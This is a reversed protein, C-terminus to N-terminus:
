SISGTFPFPPTGPIVGIVIASSTYTHLVRTLKQVFMTASPNPASFVDVLGSILGGLGPATVISTQYVSIFTSLCSDFARAMKQATIAGAPNMSSYIAGLDQGLTSSGPMATFSGGGANIGASVYNFYAQATKMGVLQGSPNGSPGKEYVGILEGQLSGSILPM